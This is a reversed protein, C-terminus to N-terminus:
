ALAAIYDLLESSVSEFLCCGLNFCHTEDDKLDVFDFLLVSTCFGCPLVDGPCCCTQVDTAIVTSFILYKLPTCEFTCTFTVVVVYDNTLCESSSMNQEAVLNGYTSVNVLKLGIDFFINFWCHFRGPCVGRSRLFRLSVM